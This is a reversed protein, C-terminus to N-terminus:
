VHSIEIETYTDLFAHYRLFMEAVQLAEEKTLTNFHAFVLPEESTIADDRKGIFMAIDKTQWILYELESITPLPADCTTDWDSLIERNLLGLAINRLEIQTM